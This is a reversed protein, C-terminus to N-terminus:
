HVRDQQDPVVSGDPRHLPGKAGSPEIYGETACAYTEAQKKPDIFMPNVLWNGGADDYATCMLETKNRNLVLRLATADTLFTVDTDSDGAAFAARQPREVLRPLHPALHRFRAHVSASMRGIEVSLREHAATEADLMRWLLRTYTRLWMRKPRPPLPSTLGPAGGSRRRIANAQRLLRATRSEGQSTYGLRRCCRCRFLRGVAYLRTVRRGCGIERVLGPCIFYPRGKGLGQQLRAM